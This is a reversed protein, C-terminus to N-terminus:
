DLVNEVPTVPAPLDADGLRDRVDREIMTSLARLPLDQPDNGFPDEIEDGIADLGYFAYGVLLVVFPTAWGVSDVIGLPLTFCYVAVIRHILLTYTFPIPTSKIRECGGQHDTFDGLTRELVQVHLPHVWGLRWAATLRQGLDHLIAIPPNTAAQYRAVDEEGILRSLEAYSTADRLRLRVAHVYAAIRRVADEQFARVERDEEDGADSGASVLTLVQRTFTRSTNVIRGWLIRGEWFRQYSTNNRFGLFIGLAVGILTFPKDSLTVGSLMHLTAQLYAILAAFATTAVLRGWIRTLISGRMQLVIGIWSLKEEFVIM